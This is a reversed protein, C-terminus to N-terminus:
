HQRHKKLENDLRGYLLESVVGRGGCDICREVLKGQCSPCVAYPMARKIGGYVNDIFALTSSFNVEVFLLDKNDQAHKVASKIGSVRTLLAQAEERRNWFPMAKPTVPCGTRDLIIDPKEAAAAKISKATIPQKSEKLKTLVGARKEPPVNAIALQQRPKVVLTTLNKPLGQIAVAGKILNDAHQHSIDWRKKCYEEWTGYKFRYQRADRIEKFALGMKGLSQQTSELEQTIAKENRNFAGLETLSM